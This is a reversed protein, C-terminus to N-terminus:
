TGPCIDSQNELACWDRADLGRGDRGNTMKSAALFGGLPCSMEFLYDFIRWFIMSRQTAPKAEVEAGDVACEVGGEVGAPVAVAAAQEV